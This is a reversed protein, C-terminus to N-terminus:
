LRPSDRPAGDGRDIRRPARAVRGRRAAQGTRGDLHSVPGIFSMVFDTAPHDYVETPSGVQEIAGANLVALTDAVEMAEEQDHTVLVTTM